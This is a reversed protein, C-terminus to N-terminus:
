KIEEALTWFMAAVACLIVSMYIFLTYDDKVGEAMCNVAVVVLVLACFRLFAGKLLMEM